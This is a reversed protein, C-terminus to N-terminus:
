VDRTKTNENVGAGEGGERGGESEGCSSSVRFM